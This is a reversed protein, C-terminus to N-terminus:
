LRKTLSFAGRIQGLEYGTAKDNPYYKNLVQKVEPTINQGHCNLCLGQVGQAKIFQYKGESLKAYAIKAAPEGAQQRKNFKELVGREFENPEAASANRAKLSIRKVSWGTQMSLQQAIKPAQVSCVQVAHEFGGSKIAQKLQPKLQGAFQKVIAKAENTLAKKELAVKGQTVKEQIANDAVTHAVSISSFGLLLFCIFVLSM